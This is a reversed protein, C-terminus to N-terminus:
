HSSNLRTSKRDGEFFFLWDITWPIITEAIFEVPTWSREAPDYLCLYPYRPDRRNIYIHPTSEGTGRPDLGIVPDIVQVSVYSNQLKWHEFSRHRFHTIRVRYTQMIPTLKGEWVAVWDTNFTLAFGPFVSRIHRDQEVISLWSM